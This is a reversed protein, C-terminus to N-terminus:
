QFVSQRQPPNIGETRITSTKDQEALYGEIIHEIVRNTSSLELPQKLEKLKNWTEETLYM